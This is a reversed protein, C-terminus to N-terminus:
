TRRAARANLEVGEGVPFRSRACAHVNWAEWSKGQDKLHCLVSKIHQFQTSPSSLM